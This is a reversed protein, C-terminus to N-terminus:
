WLVAQAAHVVKPVVLGDSDPIVIDRTAQVTTASPGDARVLSAKDVLRMTPSVPNELM